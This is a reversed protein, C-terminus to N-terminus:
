EHLLVFPFNEVSLTVGDEVVRFLLIETQLDKHTLTMDQPKEAM